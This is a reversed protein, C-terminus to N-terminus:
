TNDSDNQNGNKHLNRICSILKEKSFEGKQMFGSIQGKLAEEDERELHRATCIIIPIDKTGKNEKLAKIVDYGTVNPMMLDLVIVDPHDNLATVIAEQGGYATLVDYNTDKLMEEMMEVAIKEDDVVLVRFSSKSNYSRIKELTAILIEKEVPKIFHEEAGLETGIKRDDLMTTIVVPIHRTSEKRKLEKLVDWGDMGPMMVDLTIAFPNMNEALKIAEEGKSTSIVRYGAYKLTEELLERSTEDDEVVLILAEDGTSNEPIIHAPADDPSDPISDVNEPANDRKDPSDINEDLPLEFTFTTSKGPESEVWIRGKHLEVFRKVLTLGLGSGEYQRNAASDLQTFPQFLRALGEESIGIGNDKVSFRVINELAEVNVDITGHQPTFKIANSILNYLIQKLKIKDACIMTVPQDVNYNVTIGKKNALTTMLQKVEILTEEVPFEELYLEMKGAEIKSLDLVNNILSLLHKGSTSINTIYRSQPDTLEGANGELILDSFGIISNLPTRLEHSMTALFDSKARNASEAVIKAQIIENEAEKIKSLDVFSEILYKKDSLAVTAVSKLIPIKEGKANILIRESRNVTKGLDSIPCKGKEAPCVFEHCLNGVIKNRPLGIIEEAVPNVDTIQHTQEDIVLVGSIINEVISEMRKRSIQEAQQIKNEKNELTELMYNINESLDYLEDNGDMKVRSSLTGDKTIATLNRSLVSLRSLVYNELSFILVIGYVIGLFLIAYFLYAIVSQGQQYIERTMEVKLSVANDGNIDNLLTTGIVADDNVYEINLISNEQSLTAMENKQILEDPGIEELVIHLKTTDQLEAILAEDVYRGVVLTGVITEYDISQTIPNSAILLTGEPTNIIGKVYVPESPGSFLIENSGLYDLVSTSVEKEEHADLDTGVASYLEGTADYYLMMDVQLNTMSNIDLNNYVYDEDEGLLFYYSDDWHGWDNALIVLHDIRSDITANVREVNRTIEEVELHNFGSEIIQGTTITLLAFMCFFTIGLIALTKSRIKM